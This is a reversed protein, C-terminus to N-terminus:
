QPPRRKPPPTPPRLPNIFLRLYRGIWKIYEWVKLWHENDRESDLLSIDPPSGLLESLQAALAERAEPTLRPLQAYATKDGLHFALYRRGTVEYLMDWCTVDALPVRTEARLGGPKIVLEHHEISVKM